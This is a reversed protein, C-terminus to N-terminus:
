LGWSKARSKSEIRADHKINEIYHNLLEKSLQDLM